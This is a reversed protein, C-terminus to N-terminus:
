CGRCIGKLLRDIRANEEDIMKTLTNQDPPVEDPSVVHDAGPARELLENDQEITQKDSRAQRAAAVDLQTPQRHGIPARMSGPGPRIEAYKPVERAHAAATSAALIVGAAFFSRMAARKGIARAVKQMASRDNTM